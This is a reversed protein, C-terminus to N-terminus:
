LLLPSLKQSQRLRRTFATVTLESAIALEIAKGHPSAAPPSLPVASLHFKEGRHSQREATETELNAMQYGSEAPFRSAFQEFSCMGSTCSNCRARRSDCSLRLRAHLASWSM